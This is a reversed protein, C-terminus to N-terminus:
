CLITPVTSPSVIDKQIDLFGLSALFEVDLGVHKSGSARRSAYLDAFAIITHLVLRRLRQQRRLQATGHVVVISLHRATAKVKIAKASSAVPGCSTSAVVAVLVAAAITALSKELAAM